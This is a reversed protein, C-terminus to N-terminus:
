VQWDYLLGDIFYFQYTSYTYKYLWQELFGSYSAFRNVDDPYEGYMLLFENQPMGVWPQNTQIKYWSENSIGFATQPDEWYIQPFAMDTPRCRLFDGFPMKFQGGNYLIILNKLSKQYQNLNTYSYEDYWLIKVKTYTHEPQILWCSRTGYVDTTYYRLYFSHVWIEKGYYPFDDTWGDRRCSDAMWVPVTAMRGDEYYLNVTQAANVCTLGSLFFVAILVACLMKRM